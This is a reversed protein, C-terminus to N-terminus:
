GPRWRQRGPAARKMAAVSSGGAAQIGRAVVNRVPQPARGWLRLWSSAAALRSFSPYGGFLEDGGLGSLAVKIGAESVARAVVYTNIGDGTPQDM